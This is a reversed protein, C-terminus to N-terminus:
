PPSLAVHRIAAAIKGPVEEQLFHGADTEYVEAGPLLRQHRGLLRGLIPDNTGWVLASPGGFSEM